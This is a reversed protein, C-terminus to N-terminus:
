LNDMETQRTTYASNTTEMKGLKPMRGIVLANHKLISRVLSSLEDYFAILETEEIVNTPNYCTIITARPNGNFTAVTMRPHTREISNKPNKTRYTFKCRRGHYQCFKEMCICHSALITIDLIRATHIQTRSHM